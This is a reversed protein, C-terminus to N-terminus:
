KKNREKLLHKSMMDTRIENAIYPTVHSIILSDCVTVM